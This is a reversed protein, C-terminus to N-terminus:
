RHANGWNVDEAYQMCRSFIDYDCDPCSIGNENLIAAAKPNEFTREDKLYPQYAQMYRDFLIELKTKPLSSWHEPRVAQLGKIPYFTQIYEILQDVTKVKENVIHYVDGHKGAEMIASFAATFFDVPILNIGGSAATEARIPMFVTGDPAFSIGMEEAGKAAQEGASKQYLNKLFLLIRVPYYMANFRFTKGTRSNGYVISPRYINLRIGEEECRKAATKEARHKSEEYVNFFTDTEVLTELCAGRQKGAVYATSIFHFFYCGSKAAFDLLHHLNQVNAKEVQPRTRESFSTESACHIIEDTKSALRRYEAPPLGLDPRNLDGPFVRIRSFDLQGTELWEFQRRVREEPSLNKMPRVPLYLVYGKNILTQALHIGLFGTAGTM